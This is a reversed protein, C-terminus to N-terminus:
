KRRIMYSNFSKISKMEVQWFLLPIVGSLIGVAGYFFYLILASVVGLILGILIHKKNPEASVDNVHVKEINGCKNCNFTFESGIEMQLDPRTIADSKISNSKKCSRCVTYLNM